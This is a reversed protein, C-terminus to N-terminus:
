VRSYIEGINRSDVLKRGQPLPRCASVFRHRYSSTHLLNPLLAVNWQVFLLFDSTFNSYQPTSINSQISIQIDIPIYLYLWTSALRRASNCQFNSLLFLLLAYYEIYTNCPELVFTEGGIFIIRVQLFAHEWRIGLYCYISFFFVLKSYIRRNWGQFCRKNTVGYRWAFWAEYRANDCISTKCLIIIGLHQLM